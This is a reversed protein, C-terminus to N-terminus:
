LNAKKSRRLCAEAEKLTETYIANCAAVGDDAKFSNIVEEISLEPYVAIDGDSKRITICGKTNRDKAVGFLGPFSKIPKVKFYCLTGCCQMETEISQRFSIEFTKANWNNMHAIFDFNAM